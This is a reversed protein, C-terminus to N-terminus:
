EQFQLHLRQDNLDLGHIGIMRRDLLVRICKELTNTLKDIFAIMWQITMWKSDTWPEAISILAFFIAWEGVVGGLLDRFTNVIVMGFIPSCSISTCNLVLHMNFIDLYLVAYKKNVNKPQPAKLIQLIACNRREPVIIFFYEVETFGRLLITLNVSSKSYIM